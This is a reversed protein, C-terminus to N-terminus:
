ETAFDGFVDTEGLETVTGMDEKIESEFGLDGLPNEETSNSIVDDPIVLSEKKYEKIKLKVSLTNLAISGESETEGLNAKFDKLSLSFSTLKKTKIDFKFTVKFCLDKLAEEINKMEDLDEETKELLNNLKEFPLKGSVVYQKDKEEMTLDTFIDANVKSLASFVDAERLTSKKEWLGEEKKYNYATLEEKDVQVYSTIGTQEENIPETGLMALMGSLTGDVKENALIVTDSDASVDCTLKLNAGLPIAGGEEKSLVLNVNGDLEMTLKGYLANEKLMDVSLGHILEEASPKKGCGVLGGICLAGILLLSLVKKM